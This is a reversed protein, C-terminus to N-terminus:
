PVTCLKNNTLAVGVELKNLLILFPQVLYTILSDGLDEPPDPGDLWYLHGYDTSTFLRSYETTTLFLRGRDSTM